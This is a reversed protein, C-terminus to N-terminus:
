IFRNISAAVTILALRSGNVQEAFASESDIFVAIVMRDALVAHVGNGCETLVLRFRFFKFICQSREAIFAFGHAVHSKFSGISM